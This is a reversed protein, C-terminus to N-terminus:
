FFSDDTPILAQDVGRAVLADVMWGRIRKESRAKTAWEALYAAMKGDDDKRVGTYCPILELPQLMMVKEVSPARAAATLVDFISSLYMDARGAQVAMIADFSNGLALKTARPAYKELEKEQSTGMVISIRAEPRNHASWQDSTVEYGKRVAVALGVAYIPGGFELAASREPTVSLGFIAHCRNSVADLVITKWSSEILELKVGLEAAVDAAMSVSFGHWSGDQAKFSNPPYETVCAKLTGTSHVDEWVSDAAQAAWTPILLASLIAFTRIHM